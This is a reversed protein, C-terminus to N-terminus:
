ELGGSSLPEDADFGRTTVRFKDMKWPVMGEVPSRIVVNHPGIQEGAAIQQAAYVAKGMKYIPKEEIPLPVKDPSGMALYVRKLSEIYEDQERPELSFAHDTGKWTRDLTIHKEFIRAGLAYAAPAMDTRAHHDSLGVIVDPFTNLYTEIV